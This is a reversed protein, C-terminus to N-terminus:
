IVKENPITKQHNIIEIQNIITELFSIRTQYNVIMAHLLQKTDGNKQLEILIKQYDAEFIKMQLLADNIIQTTEPTEKAKLESLEKAVVSAFYDHTEKTQASANQWQNVPEQKTQYFAILGAIFIFSAAISLPIWNKKRKKIPGGNLKKLFRDTHGFNPNETDWQNELRDFLSKIPDKSTNM